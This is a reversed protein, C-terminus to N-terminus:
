AAGLRRSDWGGSTQGDRGYLSSGQAAATMAALAQRNAQLRAAILSGNTENVEHALRTAELLRRWEAALEASGAAGSIWSEMGPRDPSMRQALLFARRQEAHGALRRLCVSKLEVHTGIRDADGTLLYEQEQQLLGLFEETVLREERLCEAAAASGYAAATM